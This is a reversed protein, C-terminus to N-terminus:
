IESLLGSVWDWCVHVHKRENRREYIIIKEDVTLLSSFVHHCCVCWLCICPSFRMSADFSICFTHLTEIIQLPRVYVLQFSSFSMLTRNKEREFASAKKECWLSCSFFSLFRLFHRFFWHRVKLMKRGSWM